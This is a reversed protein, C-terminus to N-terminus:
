IFAEQTYGINRAARKARSRHSQSALRRVRQDQEASLPAVAESYWTEIGRANTRALEFGAARYITGRHRSRDCYSLVARVQYPEEVFCPPHVALYDYGVNELALGIVHSALASRWAGHRDVFGPLWRPGYFRGAVQVSPHLWLRALNLVCWRDLRARGAAIDAQSGYTLAGDYCRTSEPRGFILCGVDAGCMRVIYAVPRCRLDVQARLYHHASVQQQAWRLGQRDALQLSIM